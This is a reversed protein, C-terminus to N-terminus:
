NPADPNGYQSFLDPRVRERRAGVGRTLDSLRTWFWPTAFLGGVYGPVAESPICRFTRYEPSVYAGSYVAPCVAIAGEWGKVQSLVVAGEYLRNFATYTTQGAEVATRAFLGQGFGKVGIQPYSRGVQVPKQDEYLELFQDLRLTRKGALRLHLSATCRAAGQSAQGRLARAEEVKAALAEIRAVIRRQEDLPPLPITAALLNRPRVAAYGTTGKAEQDLQEQLYNATFIAQLYRLDLRERRVDFDLAHRQLRRSRRSARASGSGCDPWPLEGTVIVVHQKQDRRSWQQPWKHSANSPPM